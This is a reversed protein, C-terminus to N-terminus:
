KGCKSDCNSSLVDKGLSRVYVMGTVAAHIKWGHQLLFNIIDMHSTCALVALVGIKEDDLVHIKKLANTLIWQKVPSISKAASSDSIIDLSGECTHDSFTLEHCTDNIPQFLTHNSLRLSKV